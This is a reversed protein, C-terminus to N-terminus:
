FVNGYKIFSILGAFFLFALILPLLTWFIFVFAWFIFVLIASFLGAIITLLRLVVGVIVMLVTVLAIESGPDEDNKTKKVQVNKKLPRFITRFLTKISFFNLSFFIVNKYIDLIHKFARTYHWSLYYVPILFVKM